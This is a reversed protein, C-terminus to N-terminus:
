HDIEFKFRHMVGRSINWECGYLWVKGCTGQYMLQDGKHVEYGYTWFGLRNSFTLEIQNRGLKLHPNLAVECTRSFECGRVVVGNVYISAMDDINFVKATWLEETAQSSSIPKPPSETKLIKKKAILDRHKKLTTQTIKTLVYVTWLPQGEDTEQYAAFHEDVKILDSVLHNSRSPIRQSMQSQYSHENLAEELKTSSQVEVGLFRAYQTEADTM